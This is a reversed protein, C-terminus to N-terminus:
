SLTKGINLHYSRVLGVDLLLQEGASKMRYCSPFSLVSTTRPVTRHFLNRLIKLISM